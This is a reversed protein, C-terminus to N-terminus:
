EARNIAIEGIEIGSQAFYLDIYNEVSVYVGLKISKSIWNEGTGTITISEMLTNNLSVTMTMQALDGLASRMSIHLMYEGKEAFSIKYQDDSGAETALESLPLKIGDTYEMHPQVIAPTKETEPINLETIDDDRGLFFEMAPSRLLMRCLNAGNRMLEGRTIKGEALGEETNDHASNTLSDSYVMYVDNQARVMPATNERRGEEGEDNIKAWWDTMVIGTYGWEKRLITTLLDYNGGTWIGNVPGYTSMVSYCGTEKICIEFGKLYIERLARESVVADASHRATEQNNCAFHKLTGTVGYKHMGRLEAAAMTGTLYPDESFYEFNRGNLPNRHINMGPGLLMDIKNKRLEKGQMEYLKETLETNFSCAILTGNPNSFASTGCDMRIGSPGDSCGAIPIGFGKLEDTVGGIAGAIGSTVKPSCMGEGRTMYILDKDSLQAIFDEMSVKGDAVDSLKHGQDGVYRDRGECALSIKEQAIRDEPRVTRLPASEKGIVSKGDADESISIREFPYVPACAEELQETVITDSNDYTGAAITDRVSSGAYICYVGKELVYCSRHGTRGDDDYSSMENVPFRLSLEQCEGPMLVKTKAFRILNMKSKGLYGAPPCYYVQVVEKGSTKGVNTVAATVTMDSGNQEFSRVKIDFDTYSLGFGFPYMVKDKAATEFYRYGVYIDETYFNRTKDGFDATSPYDAIDYAITDALKGSPSVKGTLVDAIGDGGESGGQWVYMVAGPDYRKVWKMDIISGVNLIVATREFYRCVMELLKEEEETLLYSGREAVSDKDEGASRGLVILAVDSRESSAKVFEEDPIMEKQCWPEMAWGAGHDFPNEKIWNRYKETVEEDVQIDGCNQLGDLISVVYPANVMGGSGTGSKYYELQIRGFVSVREGKHLPLTERDNKLLVCGEGTLQRALSAYEKWDFIFKM